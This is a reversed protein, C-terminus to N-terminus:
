ESSIIWILINEFTSIPFLLLNLPFPLGFFNNLQFYIGVFALLWGVIEDLYTDEEKLDLIGKDNLFSLIRRSFMLGGRIASEVASIVRQIYWAVTVALSKCVLNISPSIWQHYKSPLATSLIPVFIITAPKRLNEGIAVGLAIVKAFEVKLVAIVAMLSNAIGYIMDMMKQPDSCHAFFFGIKRSILEKASIQLVDAVGDGDEDKKDDERSKKWLVKYETWLYEANKQVVEYGTNYFAECASITVAFYGGFFTLILGVFAFLLDIPTLVYAHYLFGYAKQIPPSVTDFVQTFVNIVPQLKKLIEGVNSKGAKEIMSDTREEEKQNNTKIKKLEGDTEPNYAKKKFFMSTSLLNKQNEFKKQQQAKETM